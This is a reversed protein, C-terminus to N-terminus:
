AWTPLGSEWRPIVVSIWFIGLGLGLSFSMILLVTFEPLTRHCPWESTHGSEPCIALPDFTALPKLGQFQCDCHAPVLGCGQNVTPCGM